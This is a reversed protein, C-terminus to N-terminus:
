AAIEFILIRGEAECPGPSKCRPMDFRYNLRKVKLAIRVLNAPPSTTTAKPIAPHAVPPGTAVDNCVGDAAEGVGNGADLGGVEFVSCSCPGSAVSVLRSITPLPRPHPKPGGSTNWVLAMLRDFPRTTRTAKAIAACPDDPPM